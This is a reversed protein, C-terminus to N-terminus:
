RGLETLENIQPVIERGGLLQRPAEPDLFAKQMDVVLVATKSPDIQWDDKPMREREMDGGKIELTIM